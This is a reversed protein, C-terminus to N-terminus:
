PLIVVIAENRYKRYIKFDSDLTMVASNPIQGAMRELCADAFSIPVSEFSEDAM